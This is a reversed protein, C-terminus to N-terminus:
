FALGLGLQGVVLRPASGSASGGLGGGLYQQYASALVVPQTLCTGEGLATGVLFNVLASVWHGYGLGIILGMGANFVVNAVHWYWQVGELENAGDKLMLREGDALVACDVSAGPAGARAAFAPGDEMVEPTGLLTFGVGVATSLAGWLQDPRDEASVAGAAGLQGITGLAYTAGWAGRWVTVKGAEAELQGKLFALREADTRAALAPSADAPIPCAQALAAPALLAAALLLAHTM